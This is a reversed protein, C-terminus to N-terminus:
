ENEKKVDDFRINREVSKARNANSISEYKFAVLFSFFLIITMEMLDIFTNRKLYQEVVLDVYM